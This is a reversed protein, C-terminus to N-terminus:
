EADLRGCDTLIRRNDFHYDFRLVTIDGEEEECERSHMWEWYDQEGSGCLWDKFYKLAQPNDFEIILSSM